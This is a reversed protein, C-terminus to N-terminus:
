WCHEALSIGECSRYDNGTRQEVLLHETTYWTMQCETGVAGIRENGALGYNKLHINLIPINLATKAFRGVIILAMEM